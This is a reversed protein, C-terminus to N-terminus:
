KVNENKKSWIDDGIVCEYTGPTIGGKLCMQHILVEIDYLNEVIYHHVSLIYEEVDDPFAAGNENDDTCPIASESKGLAFALDELKGGLLYPNVKDLTLKGYDEGDDEFRILNILKLHDENLVLKKIM